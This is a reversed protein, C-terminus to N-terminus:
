SGARAEAGDYKGEGGSARIEAGDVAGGLKGGGGSPRTDTTLSIGAGEPAFRGAMEAAGGCRPVIESPPEARSQSRAAGSPAREGRSPGVEGRDGEMHVDGRRHVTFVGRRHRREALPEVAPVGLCGRPLADASRLVPLFAALPGAASSSSIM